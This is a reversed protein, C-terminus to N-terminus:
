RRNQHFNKPKGGTVLCLAFQKDGIRDKPVWPKILRGTKINRVVGRDNIEYKPACPIQIWNDHGLKM